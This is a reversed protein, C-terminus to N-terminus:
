QRRALNGNKLPDGVSTCTSYPRILTMLLGGSCQFAAPKDLYAAPLSGPVGDQQLMALVVKVVAFVGPSRLRSEM